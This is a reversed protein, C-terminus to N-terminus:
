IKGLFIPTSAVGLFKFSKFEVYGAENVTVAGALYKADENTQAAMPLGLCVLFLSLVLKKMTKM